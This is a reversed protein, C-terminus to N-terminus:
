EGVYDEFDLGEEEDEEFKLVTVKVEVNINSTEENRFTRMEVSGYDLLYYEEVTNLLKGFIKTLNFVDFIENESTSPEWVASVVGSNVNM